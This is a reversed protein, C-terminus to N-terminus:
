DPLRAMWEPWTINRYNQTEFKQHWQLRWLEKLRVPRVTFDVFVANVRGQHRNINYRNM